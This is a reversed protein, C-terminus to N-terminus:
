IKLFGREWAEKNFNRAIEKAAEINENKESCLLIAEGRSDRETRAVRSCLHTLIKHSFVEDNAFYVMIDTNTLSEAAMSFEDTVMIAKKRKYFNVIIKIDSKDKIFFSINSSIDLCYKYIYKYVREVKEESPVYILVNRNNNISWKLYDYVVYPIDKNIDIRTIIERPEIMPVKRDKVPLIIENKNPFISEVSYFIRKSSGHSVKEVLNLISDNEHMPVSNIEDYIVLDFERELNESTKFNSIVLNSDLNSFPNRLHTYGRFESKRKISEILQINDKEDTIYLVKKNEIIYRFITKVFIDASNHPLTIVNLNNDNEFSWNYISNSVREREQNLNLKKLISM